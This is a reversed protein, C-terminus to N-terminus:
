KTGGEKLDLSNQLEQALKQNLTMLYAVAAELNIIAQRADLAIRDCCDEVDKYPCGDCESTSSTCLELAKILNEHM